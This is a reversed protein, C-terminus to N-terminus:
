RRQNAIGQGARGKEEGRLEARSQEAKISPKDIKKPKSHGAGGKEEGRM